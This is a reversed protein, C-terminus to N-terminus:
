AATITVASMDCGVSTTLVVNTCNAPLIAACDQPVAGLDGSERSASSNGSLSDTVQVTSQVRVQGGSTIFGSTITGTQSLPSCSTIGTNASGICTANVISVVTTANYDNCTTCGSNAIGSVTMSTSAPLATCRTPCGTAAACCCWFAFVALGAEPKWLSIYVIGVAVLWQRVLQAKTM